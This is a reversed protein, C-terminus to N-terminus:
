RGQFISIFMVTILSIAYNQFWDLFFISSDTSSNVNVYMSRNSGYVKCAYVQGKWTKCKGYDFLSIEGNNETWTLRLLFTSQGMINVNVFTM